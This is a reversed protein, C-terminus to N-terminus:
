RLTYRARMGLGRCDLCCLVADLLSFICNRLKAHLQYAVSSLGLVETKGRSKEVEVKRYM